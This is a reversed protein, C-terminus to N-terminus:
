RVGGPKVSFESDADHAFLVEGGATTISVSQWVASGYSGIRIEFRGNGPRETDTDTGSVTCDWSRKGDYVDNLKVCFDTIIRGTVKLTIGDKDRGEQKMYLM